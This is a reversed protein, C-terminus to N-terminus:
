YLEHQAFQSIIIRIFNYKLRVEIESSLLDQSKTVGINGQRINKTVNVSNYSGELESHTLTNDTWVEANDNIESTNNSTETLTNDDYSREHQRLTQTAPKSYAKDTKTGEINTETGDVNWLPSYEEALTNYIRKINDINTDVYFNFINIFDEVTDAHVCKFRSFTYKFSNYIVDGEIITNDNIQIEMLEKQEQTIQRLVEKM